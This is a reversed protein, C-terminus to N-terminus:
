AKWVASVSVSAYALNNFEKSVQVRGTLVKGGHDPHIITLKKGHVTRIMEAIIKERDEKSGYSIEFSATLSRTKFICSGTADCYDLSGHMGDVQVFSEEIPPTQLSLKTMTFGHAATDYGGLILGRRKM